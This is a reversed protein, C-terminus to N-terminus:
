NQPKIPWDDEALYPFSAHDTIDRLAQRYIVFDATKEATLPSDELMTWDTEALLYNRKERVNAAVVGDREAIEQATMDVAQHNLLWEGNVLEPTWSKVLKQDAGVTPNTERVPYVGYDALVADSPNKPFSTNPNDRRLLGISYPYKEVVGNNAKLYM